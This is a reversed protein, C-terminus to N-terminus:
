FRGFTTPEGSLWRPGGGRSLLELFFYPAKKDYGIQEILM